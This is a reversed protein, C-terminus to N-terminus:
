PGLLFRAVTFAGEHQKPKTVIGGLLLRGEPDLTADTSTLERRGPLHTFLWGHKGFSPDPRGDPLLRAVVFSSRPQGKEPESTPSGVYGALLLRGKADVGALETHLGVVSPLRVNAAGGAGFGPEPSGEPGIAILRLTRRGRYAILIMAGSPEVLGVHATPFERAGEPGFSSLPEGAPGFRHVTTGFGCKEAETIGGRAVGVVPQDGEALGFFLSRTNGAGVIPSIGNGTGFGPDPQGAETLRVLEQPQVGGEGHGECAAFLGEAGAVFVLRGASDVRGTLATARTLGVAPDPSVGFDGEVFGKGEGFSPDLRRGGPGFRLVVAVRAFELTGEQSTASQGMLTVAGFVVVRGAADVAFSDPSLHDIGRDIGSAPIVDLRGSKGFHTDWIGDTGFRVATGASGNAVLATGRPGLTLQADSGEGAVAFASTAVGGKGYTPDLRGAGTRASAGPPACLAALAACIGVLALRRIM